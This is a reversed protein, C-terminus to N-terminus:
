QNNRPLTCSPAPYWQAMTFFSEQSTPRQAALTKTTPAAATNM